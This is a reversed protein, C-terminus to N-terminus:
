YLSQHCPVLFMAPDHPALHIEIDQVTQAHSVFTVFLHLCVSMHVSYLLAKLLLMILSASSILHLIQQM